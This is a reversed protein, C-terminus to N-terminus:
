IRAPAEADAAAGQPDQRARRAPPRHCRQRADGGFARFAQRFEDDHLSAEIHRLMQEDTYDYLQNHEIDYRVDHALLQPQNFKLVKQDPYRKTVAVVYNYIRTM